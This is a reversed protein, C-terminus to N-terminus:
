VKINNINNRYSYWKDYFHSIDNDSNPEFRKLNSFSVNNINLADNCIVVGGMISAQSFGNKVIINKGILDALLQPLVKGKFGGGCGYIYDKDVPSITNLVDFNYKISAAIDFIVAYIFDEIKMDHNVPANMIFGGNYLPLNKDFVLTGLSALIKPESISSVKDEIEDFTKDSFFIKRLRQYNLGSVGANTELMFENPNVNRSIWCRQYEDSLYEDIIKVIPTTTGSVLVTDEKEIQTGKVALQTDAGGVIFPISKKVSLTESKELLLEGQVTGSEVVNPLWEFPIGFVECMKISWEAQNIDFLLTESAQSEEYVLNGTLEYGVWDSISTFYAIENWLEKEENQIGYLKLASFVTTPWRGTTNYIDNNYKFDNEWEQGRNDVNPIGILPKGVDNMLVIGERQSTSTIAEIQIDGAEDISKLILTQIEDLMEKPNFYCASVYKNEKIYNVDNTNIALIEGETTVIAVRLNGTGIDIVVYGKNM